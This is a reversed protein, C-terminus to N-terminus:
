MDQSDQRILTQLAIQVCQGEPPPPPNKGMEKKGNKLHLVRMTTRTEQPYAERNKKM